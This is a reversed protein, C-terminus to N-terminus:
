EDRYLQELLGAAERRCTEPDLTVGDSTLNLALGVTTALMADLEAPDRLIVDRFGLRGGAIKVLQRVLRVRADTSAATVADVRDILSQLKEAATFACVHPEGAALEGQCLLCCAIAESV